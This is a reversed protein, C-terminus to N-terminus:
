FSRGRFDDEEKKESYYKCELFLQENDKNYRIFKEHTLFLKEIMSRLSNMSNRM